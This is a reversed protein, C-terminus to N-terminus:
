TIGRSSFRYRGLIVVRFPKKPQPDPEPKTGAMMRHNGAAPNFFAINKTNAYAVVDGNRANAILEADSPPIHMIKKHGLDFVEGNPPDLPVRM